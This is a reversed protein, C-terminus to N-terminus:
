GGNHIAQTVYELIEMKRRNGQCQHESGGDIPEGLMIAGIDHEYDGIILPVAIQRAM